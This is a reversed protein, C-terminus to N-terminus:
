RTLILWLKRVPGRRAALLASWSVLVLMEEVLLGEAGASVPPRAPVPAPGKAVM